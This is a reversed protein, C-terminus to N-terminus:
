KIFISKRNPQLENSFLHIVLEEASSISAIVCVVYMTVDSTIKLLLPFVLLIFGTAKNGYTHLVAFTKYKVFVIILSVVRIFGIIFVWLLISFPPDIVPYLLIILVTVMILDAASDLKEGLKSETHTKRAIYGDLMDSIGSLIYITFFAASLPETLVLSLVLIIRAASIYNALSKMKNAELWRIM